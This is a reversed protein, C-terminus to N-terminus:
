RKTKKKVEIVFEYTGTIDYLGPEYDSPLLGPVVCLERKSIIKNDDQEMHFRAMHPDVHNFNLAGKITKKAM